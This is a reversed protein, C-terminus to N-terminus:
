TPRIFQEDNFKTHNFIVVNENFHLKYDTISTNFTQYWDGCQYTNSLITVQFHERSIKSILWQIGAHHSNIKIFAEWESVIHDRLTRFTNRNAVLISGTFEYTNDLHIFSDPDIFNLNQSVKYLSMPPMASYVSLIENDQPSLAKMEIESMKRQMITDADIEIIVDDDQCDLYDIFEGGQPCVFSERNTPYGERYTFIDKKNMLYYEGKYDEPCFDIFGAVFRGDWYKAISDFLPKTREYYDETIQTTIIHEM